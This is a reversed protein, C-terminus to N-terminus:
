IEKFMDKLVRPNYKQNSVSKIYKSSKRISLITQHDMFEDTIYQIKKYEDKLYRRRRRVDQLKKAMDELDSQSFQNYELRSLIDNTTSDEVEVLGKLKKKDEYIKNTYYCWKKSIDGWDEIDIDNPIQREINFHRIAVKKKNNKKHNVEKKSQKEATKVEDKAAKPETLSTNKDSKDLGDVKTNSSLKDDIIDKSTAKDGVIGKAYEIGRKLFYKFSKRENKIMEDMVEGGKAM